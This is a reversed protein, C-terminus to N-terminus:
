LKPQDQDLYWWWGTIVRDRFESGDMANRIAALDVVALIRPAQEKLQQDLKDLKQLLSEAPPATARQYASSRDPELNLAEQVVNRPDLVDTVMGGTVLSTPSAILVKLAKEYNKIAASLLFTDM